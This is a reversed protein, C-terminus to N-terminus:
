AVAVDQPRVFWRLEEVKEPQVVNYRQEAGHTRLLEAEAAKMTESLSPRDSKPAPAPMASFNLTELSAALEAKHNQYRWVAGNPDFRYFPLLKWGHEAVLEIARVLYEFTEEDIFYNFNLRIWGPRLIMHGEVLQEELAKSYHMDMGLLAHGYPGACSCGGRAQIGFLDNLLAVIFSYHLDKGKHTIKLSTISLRPAETNGLIEINECKSWRAVARSVFDEERREIEDTGVAQQLKFVLGARVSEVIAPTGGEERREADAVYRHDEPTVYMVTGGGPMAPVRNKLITDSVILVGPTGPGGVFKHPSLFIADKSSDGEETEEGAMDIGVYPGAAAYDWFSLAGHKHLLRAVTDVDTKVGTVNSAASFSGIKLPRDAYKILQKELDDMCVQGGECLPISVVDAISERWPLENSHHEYPGIFVVPREEAPIQQEFKYRASLDAPLKLNLIDILKHIASTAGSGCFIVSHDDTANVASRIQQRAQERLATTQAGTYSTETHTNAYYPLVHDRIYDEIMSLSRGSATYDAYVLPKRGFATTIAADEGIVSNRIKDILNCM